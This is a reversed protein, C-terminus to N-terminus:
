ALKRVLDAFKFLSEAEDPGLVDAAVAAFKEDELNMQLLLNAALKHKEERNLFYAYAEEEANTYEERIKKYEPASLLAAAMDLAMYFDESNKM